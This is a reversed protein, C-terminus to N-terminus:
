GPLASGASSLVWNPTAISQRRFVAIGRKEPAAAVPGAAVGAESLVLNSPAQPPRLRKDGLAFAAFPAYIDNFQQFKGAQVALRQIEEYASGRTNLGFRIIGKPAGCLLRAFL